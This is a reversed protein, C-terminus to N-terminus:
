EKRLKDLRSTKPVDANENLSGLIYVKGPNDGETDFGVSLLIWGNHLCRNVDDEFYLERVTKIDHISFNSMKQIEKRIYEATAAAQLFM